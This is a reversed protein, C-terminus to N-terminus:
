LVPILDTLLPKAAPSLDVFFRDTKKQDRIGSM